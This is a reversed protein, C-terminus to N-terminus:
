FCIVKKKGRLGTDYLRPMIHSAPLVPIAVDLFKFLDEQGGTLIRLFFIEGEKNIILQNIESSFFFVLKTFVM